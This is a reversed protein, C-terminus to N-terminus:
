VNRSALTNNTFYYGTGGHFANTGAKSIMQIRAGASRGESASFNNSVVRVEEVSDANPTLNSGNSYPSNTNSGDLSFTNSERRQGNAYTQPSTEGSFSDAQASSAGRFTGSLGRGTVGPQFALLSFVNRGNMPLEKLKVPEIRASIRGEETAVQAIQESVTVQDVLEGVKLVFDARLTESIGLPVSPREAPAFGPVAVNVRYTGPGLNIVRYLGDNSTTAQRGVGSAVNTVHVIAEPVASGSADTVVGQIASTFQAMASSLSLCFLVATLEIRKLSM